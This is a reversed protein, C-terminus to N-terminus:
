IGKLFAMYVMEFQTVLQPLEVYKFADLPKNQGSYCMCWNNVREMDVRGNALEWHMEHAISLIKRKMKDARDGDLGAYNQLYKILKSTEPPLLGSLHETRGDSYDFALDEKFVTLGGERLLLYVLRIQGPTM